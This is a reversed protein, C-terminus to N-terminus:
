FLSKSRGQLFIACEKQLVSTKYIRFLRNQNRCIEYTSWKWRKRPSAVNKKKRPTEELFYSPWLSKQEENLDKMGALPNIVVVVSDVTVDPSKLWSLVCACEGLESCSTLKQSLKNQIMNETNYCLAYRLKLFFSFFSKYSFIITNANKFTADKNPPALEWENSLQFTVGKYKTNYRIITRSRIKSAGGGRRTDWLFSQKVGTIVILSKVAFFICYLVNGTYRLACM